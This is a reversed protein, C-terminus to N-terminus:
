SSIFKQLVALGAPGSREPHFQLGTINEKRIAGVLQLREYVCYGLVCGPDDPVAMFSHVFYFFTKSPTDSLCSHSWNSPDAPYDLATWGIHPVKRDRQGGAEGGIPIPQVSGPILGLGDHQGYEMGVSMLMQMGLCIGLIPRGVKAVYNLGEDLGLLHLERMGAAFAGVGPLIVRDAKEVKEPDASVVVKAGVYELGRVINRLNVIGYDVVVVNM